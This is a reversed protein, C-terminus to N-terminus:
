GPVLGSFLDVYHEVLKEDAPPIEKPLCFNADVEVSQRMALADVNLKDCVQTFAEEIAVIKALCKARLTDFEADGAEARENCFFLLARNKWFLAVYNVDLIQLGGIRRTYDHHYTKYLMRPVAGEIADVTDIDGRMIAEIAVNAQEVPRLKPYLKAAKQSAKM